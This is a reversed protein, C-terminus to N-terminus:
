ENFDQGTLSEVNSKPPRKFWLSKMSVSQHMRIPRYVSTGWSFFSRARGAGTWPNLGPSPWWRCVTRRRKRLECRRLRPLPDGQRNRRALRDVGDLSSISNEDDSIAQGGGIHNCRELSPAMNALYRRERASAQPRAAMARDPLLREAIEQRFREGRFALQEMLNAVRQSFCLFPSHRPMADHIRQPRLPPVYPFIQRDNLSPANGSVQPRDPINMAKADSRLHFSSHLLQDCAASHINPSGRESAYRPNTGAVPCHKSGLASAKEFREIDVRDDNGRARRM